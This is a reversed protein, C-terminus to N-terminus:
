YKGYIALNGYNALKWKYVHENLNNQDNQWTIVKDYTVSIIKHQSELILTEKSFKTYNLNLTDIVWNLAVFQFLWM